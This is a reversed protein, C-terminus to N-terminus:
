RPIEGLTVTRSGTDTVARLGTPYGEGQWAFANNQVAVKGLPGNKGLVEVHTIGDRTLGYAEAGRQTSGVAYILGDPSFSTSCGSIGREGHNWVVYCLDGDESAVGSVRLGNAEFLLRAEDITPALEAADPGYDEDPSTEQGKSSLSVLDMLADREAQTAPTPANDFGRAHRAPADDNLESSAGLALSATVAVSAVIGGVLIIRKRM